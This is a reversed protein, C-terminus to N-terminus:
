EDFLNYDIMSASILSSTLYEQRADTFADRALNCLTLLVQFHSFITGQLTFANATAYETDLGNYIQFLQHLYSDSIFQSTCVPHFGCEIDIFSSYTISVQSCPCNLADVGYQQQLQQYQELSPSSVTFKKTSYALSNYMVLIFLASSLLLFYVHTARRQQQLYNATAKTPNDFANLQKLWNRIQSVFTMLRAVASAVFNQCKLRCTKHAITRIYKSAEPATHQPQRWRIASVCTTIVFPVLIRLSISLGGIIGVVTTITELLSNSRLIEYSCSAPQCQAFYSSYNLSQNWYEIFLEALLAGITSNTTFRSPLSSNLRIWDTPFWAQNYFDIVNALCDQDDYFCELTSQLLSEVSFCARYLGPLLSQAITSSKNYLGLQGKCNIDNACSCSYSSNGDVGSYNYISLTVTYSDTVRMSSLNATSFYQNVYTINRTLQFFRLFTNFLESKFEKIISIMQKEFLDVTLLYSTVLQTQEFVQYSSVVTENTLDCLKSLMYFSQYSRRFDLRDFGNTDVQLLARIKWLWSPSVFDSSCVQHYFPQLQVLQGYPANIQTCPCQLSFNFERQLQLYLVTEYSPMKVQVVKTQVSLMTYFILVALGITLCLLYIRSTWCQQKIDSPQQRASSAFLNINVISHWTHKTTALVRQRWLNTTIETTAPV